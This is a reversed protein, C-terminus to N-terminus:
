MNKRSSKKCEGDRCKQSTICSILHQSKFRNIKTHSRGHSLSLSLSQSWKWIKFFKVVVAVRSVQAGMPSTRNSKVRSLSLSFSLSSLTFFPLFKSERKKVGKRRFQGNTRAGWRMRMRDDTRMRRFSMKQVTKRAAIGRESKGERVETMEPNKHRSM